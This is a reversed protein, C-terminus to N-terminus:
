PVVTLTLDNGTGGEYSAQYNNRGATFTSGDPLNIFTGAIPNASTNSIATFVTGANLIGRGVVSMSFEAGSEITVAKAIVMDAKAQRSNLKYSYTADAKLTLAKQITLTTPKSTGASPELFAGTGSGSGMTVAGAITGKGGLTGASAKVTGSGTALSCLPSM